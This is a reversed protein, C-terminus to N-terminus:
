KLESLPRLGYHSVNTRMTCLEEETAFIFWILNILFIKLIYLLPDLKIWRMAYFVVTFIFNISIM